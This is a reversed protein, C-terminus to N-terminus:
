HVRGVCLCLPPHPSCTTVHKFSKWRGVLWTQLCLLATLTEAAVLSSVVWYAAHAHKIELGYLFAEKPLYIVTNLLCHSVRSAVHLEEGLSVHSVTSM